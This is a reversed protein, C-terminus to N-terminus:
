EPLPDGTKDTTKSTPKGESSERRQCVPSLTDVMFYLLIVYIAKVLKM